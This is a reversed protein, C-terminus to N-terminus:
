FGYNLSLSIAPYNSSQTEVVLRRVIANTTYNRATGMLKSGLGRRQYKEWVLIDWVRFSDNWEREALVLGMKNEFAGWAVPKQEVPELLIYETDKSLQVPSEKLPVEIYLM